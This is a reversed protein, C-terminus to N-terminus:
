KSEKIQCKKISIIVGANAKNERKPIFSQTGYEFAFNTSNVEINDCVLSKGQEFTSLLENASNQVSKDYQAFFYVAGFILVILGTILFKNKKSILNESLAFIILIFLILVLFLIIRM